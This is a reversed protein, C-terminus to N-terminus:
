VLENQKPVALVPHPLQLSMLLSEMFNLTQDPLKSMAASFHIELPRDSLVQIAKIIQHQFENTFYALPRAERQPSVIFSNVIM